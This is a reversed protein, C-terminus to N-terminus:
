GPVLAFFINIRTDNKLNAYARWTSKYTDCKFKKNLVTHYCRISNLKYGAPVTTKDVTAAYRGAPLDEWWTDGQDTGVCSNWNTTTNRLCVVVDSLGQDGSSYIGNRDNDVFVWTDIYGNGITQGAPSASVTRAGLVPLLLVAMLLLLFLRKM